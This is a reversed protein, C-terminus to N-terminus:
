IKPNFSSTNKQSESLYDYDYELFPSFSDFQSSSLSGPADTVSSLNRERYKNACYKSNNKPVNNSCQVFLSTHTINKPLM